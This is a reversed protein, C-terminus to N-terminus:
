QKWSNRQNVDAGYELLASVINNHDYKAAFMLATNGVDYSIDYTKVNVNAENELLNNVVDEYGCYSALMLATHGKDDQVNVDADLELLTTVIENLGSLAALMIGTMVHYADAHIFYVGNIDLGEELCLILDQLLNEINEQSVDDVCEYLFNQDTVISILSDFQVCSQGSTGGIYLAFWLIIFALILKMECTISYYKLTEATQGPFYVM